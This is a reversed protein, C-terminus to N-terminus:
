ITCAAEGPEDGDRAPIGEYTNPYAVYTEPAQHDEGQDFRDTILSSPANVQQRKERDILGQLIRVDDDNFVKATM